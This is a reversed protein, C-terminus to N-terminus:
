MIQKKRLEFLESVERSLDPVKVLLYNKNKNDPHLCVLMLTTIKKNYNRELIAKYINLQLAYHWYNTDPLHQICDTMSYKEFSSTKKIEKVRKWDYIMLGGDVAPDEFVMDISGAIKVEEDYVMWETRYPVLHAYDRVFNMFFPSIGDNPNAAPTPPACGGDLFPTPPACGGSVIPTPPASGGDLFSLQPACGGNYYCEIAYHMQTGAFSAEDRSADWQAKIEDRTKGYYVSSAWNKSAMMGTIIKDADFHEFHSHLWTTVSIYNGSNSVAGITYKHAVPEFTINADRPHPNKEQLLTINAM